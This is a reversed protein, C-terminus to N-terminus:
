PRVPPGFDTERLPKKLVKGSPNRPLPDAQVAVYQPVKYDALHQRAYEVVQRPDVVGPGPLRWAVHEGIDNM